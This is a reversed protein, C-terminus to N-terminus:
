IIIHTYNLLPADMFHEKDVWEGDIMIDIIFKFSYPKLSVTTSCGKPINCSLRTKDVSNIVYIPWCLSNRFWVNNLSLVQKILSPFLGFFWSSFSLHLMSSSILFNPFNPFPYYLWISLFLYISTGTWVVSRSERAYLTKGAKSWGPLVIFLLIICRCQFVTFCFCNM